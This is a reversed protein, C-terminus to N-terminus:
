RGGCPDGDVCHSFKEEAPETVEDCGELDDVATIRVFEEASVNGTGQIEERLLMDNILQDVLFSFSVLRLSVNEHEM